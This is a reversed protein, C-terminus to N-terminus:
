FLFATGGHNYYDEFFARDPAPIPALPGWRDGLEMVIPQRDGSAPRWPPLGPGNPNGTKVFNTWYRMMRASVDRDERTFGREPAADLTGFVYPVEATHFAKYKAANPGPETHDYLYLFMPTRSTHSRAASWREMNLLLRERGSVLAQQGAEADTSAPCLKLFDASFTGYRAAMTPYGALNTPFPSEAAVFGTMTPVDNQRSKAFAAATQERLFDGDVFLCACKPFGYGQGAKALVQHADAARLEALSSAKLRQALGLGYAQATPLDADTPLVGVPFSEAIAGAFLGRARPSILLANVMAAGGSQGAITVRSADGGFASANRHVWKLAAVVDYGAQNGNVGERSLEPHSFFGFVGLRYNVTIVIVGAERAMTEGNYIEVAGSGGTFGGGHIWVLIPLREGASHPPTWVNLFLCDESVPGQTVYEHTYPGGGQPAVFQICSAGFATADRIGTWSAAPAPRRWRLAGVPPAAYPVGLFASVGGKLAVGHLEGEAVRAHAPAAQSTAHTACVSVAILCALLFSRM